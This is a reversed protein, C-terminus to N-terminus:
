SSGVALAAKDQAKSLSYTTIVRDGSTLQAVTGTAVDVKVIQVTGKISAPAYIAQGDNAWTLPPPRRGLDTLAINSFTYDYNPAIEKEQAPGEVRSQVYLRVNDYGMEQVIGAAFAIKQGDPSFSATRVSYDGGVLLEPEGGSASIAWLHQQWAERDYGEGRLSTFLIETGDPSIDTISGVRYPHFTLQQPEADADIGIVCLQPRRKGFYGVGDLKYFM